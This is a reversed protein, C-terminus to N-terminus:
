CPKIQELEVAGPQDLCFVSLPAHEDRDLLVRRDVDAGFPNVEIKCVDGELLGAWVPVGMQDAAVDVLRPELRHAVLLLPCLRNQAVAPRHLRHLHRGRVHRELVVVKRLSSDHLEALMEIGHAAIRHIDPCLILAPAKGADRQPTEAFPLAVRNRELEVIARFECVVLQLEEDLVVIGGVVIDSNDAAGAVDNQSTPSLYDLM